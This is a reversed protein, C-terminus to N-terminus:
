KNKRANDMGLLDNQIKTEELLQHKAHFLSVYYRGKQLAFQKDDGKLAEQFEEYAIRRKEEKEANGKSIFIFIAIGIGAWFLLVLTM